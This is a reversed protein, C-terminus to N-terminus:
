ATIVFALGGAYDWYQFFRDVSMTENRGSLPDMYYAIEVGHDDDRIGLVVVAHDMAASFPAKVTVLVPLPEDQDDVYSRLKSEVDHTLESVDCNHSRLGDLALDLVCGDPGEKCWASVQSVSVHRGLHRLIATVSTPLCSNSGPPQQIPEFGEVM